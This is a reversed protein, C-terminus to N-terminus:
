PQWDLVEYAGTPDADPEALDHDVLFVYMEDWLSTDLALWETGYLPTTSDLVARAFAADMEPIYGDAIEIAAEPNEVIFGIARQLARLVAGVSEADTELIQTSAGVSIGVLPLDPTQVLSVDVGAAELGLLDNNTFVVVADVAGSVMASQSTYGIYEITVDDETLGAGELSALLAFWSEGFPGPVGIVRDTLDAISAAGIDTRAAIALPYQQYLTGVTKVDVGQSYAQLMEDGGAVVLDEEGASLAGFLSESVGHHRLTVTVGEDDFYGEHEAVYFPAFQIDPVYTLGITLSEDGGPGCSTVFLAALAVIGAIHRKM